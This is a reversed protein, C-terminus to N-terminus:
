FGILARICAMCPDFELYNKPRFDFVYNAQYDSPAMLLKLFRIVLDYLEGWIVPSVEIGELDHSMRM